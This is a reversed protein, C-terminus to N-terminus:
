ERRICNRKLRGALYAKKKYALRTAGIEAAADDITLQCRVFEKTDREVSLELAFLRDSSDRLMVAAGRFARIFVFPTEMM